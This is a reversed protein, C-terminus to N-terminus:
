LKTTEQGLQQRLENLRETARTVDVTFSRRKRSGLRLNANVLSRQREMDARIAVGAVSIKYAPYDHGRSCRVGGLLSGDIDAQEYAVCSSQCQNCRVGPLKQETKVSKDEHTKM